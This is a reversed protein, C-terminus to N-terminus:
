AAKTVLKWVPSAKTGAGGNVYLNGASTDIYISGVGCTNAGSVDDTPSAAGAIIRIGSVDGVIELHNRDAPAVTYSVGSAPGTLSEVHLYHQAPYPGFTLTGSASLATFTGAAANPDSLLACRGTSQGDAVVTVIQGATFPVITRLNSSTAM